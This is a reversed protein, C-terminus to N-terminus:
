NIEEEAVIEFIVEVDREGIKHVYKYLGPSLYDYYEQLPITIEITNNGVMMQNDGNTIKSLGVPEWPVMVLSPAIDESWVYM